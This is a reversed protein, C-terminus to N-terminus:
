AIKERAAYEPDAAPLVFRLTSGKGPESEAWLRGRNREIMEKSLMLGLGTGTEGATGHTSKTESLTFLKALKAAPIGVGTDAVSVEIGDDTPRASVAIRGGAPTFKIANNVLNRIVAETMDKDAVVRTGGLDVTVAIKKEDLNNRLVGVVSDAVEGLDLVSPMVEIKNMQLRAWELLNTLLKFIHEASNHIDTALEKVEAPDMAEADASLIETFGLIANFPSKLDHSIISFFKNKEENLKELDAKALAYDEALQIYETNLAGSRERLDRMSVLDQFLRGNTERLKEETGNMILAMRVVNRLMADQSGDWPVAAVVGAAILEREQERQVLDMLVIIPTRIGAEKIGSVISSTTEFSQAKGRVVCVSHSGSVLAELTEDVGDVQLIDVAIDPEDAFAEALADRVEPGPASLLIKLQEM